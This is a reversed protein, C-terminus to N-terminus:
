KKRVALGAALRANMKFIAMTGEREKDMAMLRMSEVLDISSSSFDENEDM